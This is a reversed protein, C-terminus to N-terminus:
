KATVRVAIRRNQAKCADTDNKECVPFEAGYGESTLRDPAVGLTVLEQKVNDARQGSLKKNAAPAGSNDTYGGIKLKVKPYAALVDAINTLQAKSVAMDLTAGGSQFVLKDFNYWTTKDIESKDNALFAVLQAEIGHAAGKVEKGSSLKATFEPEAAAEPAAPPPTPETKPPEAAVVKPRYEVYALWQEVQDIQANVEIEGKEFREDLEDRLKTLEVRASDTKAATAISNPAQAVATKLEALRKNTELFLRRVDQLGIPTGVSTMSRGRQELLSIRKSLEDFRQKYHNTVGTVEDQMAAVNSTKECGAVALLSTLILAHLKM